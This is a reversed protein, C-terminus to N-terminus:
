AFAIDHPGHVQICYQSHNSEKRSQDELHYKCLDMGTREDTMELFVQQFGDLRRGHYGTLTILLMHVSNPLKRTDVNLVHTGQQKDHDMIDGSHSVCSKGFSRNVYDVIGLLEMSSDYILCSVDLFHTGGSNWRWHEKLTIGGMNPPTSYTEGKLLIKSVGSKHIRCFETKSTHYKKAMSNRWCQRLWGTMYAKTPTQMGLATFFHAWDEVRLVAQVFKRFRTMAAGGPRGFLTDYMEMTQQLSRGSPRAVIVLFGVQFMLLRMSVRSARWFGNLLAEDVDGGHPNRKLRGIMDPDKQCVWLVQRDFVENVYPQAIDRFSFQESVALLNILNGLSPCHSKNRNAPSRLFTSLQKDVTGALGHRQVLAYFLRHMGCYVGLCANSAQVGKSGLLVAMTNLIKPMAKLWATPLITGGRAAAEPCLTRLARHLAPQARLFHDETLYLPLFGQVPENSPSKRIKLDTFAEGSMFYGGDVEVYDVAKTMPNTTYRFGAGLVTDEHGLRTAFCHVADAADNAELTFAYRWDRADTPSLRSNPFQRELLRRWVEGDEVAAALGRCTSSLAVVDTSALQTTIM